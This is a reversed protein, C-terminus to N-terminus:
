KEVRHTVVSYSFPKPNALGIKVIVSGGRVERVIGRLGSAWVPDGRAFKRAGSLVEAQKQQRAALEADTLPPPLPRSAKVTISRKTRATVAARRHAAGYNLKSM